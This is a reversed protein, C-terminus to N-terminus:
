FVADLIIRTRQMSDFFALGHPSRKYIIVSQNRHIEQIWELPSGGEQLNEKNYIDRRLLIDELIDDYAYEGFVRRMFMGKPYCDGQLCIEKKGIEIKYFPKGLTYLEVDVRNAYTKVFGTDAFRIGGPLVFVIRYPTQQLPLEVQRHSCAVLFLAFVGFLPAYFAKLIKDLSKM